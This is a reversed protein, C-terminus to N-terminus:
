SADPPTSEVESDLHKSDIPEPACPESIPSQVFSFWLYLVVGVFIASDAINFAPWRYIQLNVDIFDTVYGHIMRDALNGVIGGILMGFTLQMSITHLLLMRRCLFIIAVTIMAVIGLLMGFGQLMGWAAGTNGIHVLSLYGPIVPIPDFYTNIPISRIVWAKTIQDLAFVLGFILFLWRYHWVRIHLRQPM